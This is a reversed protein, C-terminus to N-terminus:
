LIPVLNSTDIVGNEKFIDIHRSTESNLIFESDQIKGFLVITKQSLYLSYSRVAEPTLQADASTVSVFRDSILLTTIKPAM